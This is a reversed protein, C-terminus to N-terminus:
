AAVAKLWKRTVCYAVFQPPAVAAVAPAPAQGGHQALVAQVAAWWTANTGTRVKYAVTGLALKAPALKPALVAPAKATAMALQSKTLQSTPVGVFEAPVALTTSAVPALVPALVPAPAEAQAAPTAAQAAPAKPAKHAM